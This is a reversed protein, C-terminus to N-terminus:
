SVVSATATFAGVKEEEEDSLDTFDNQEGVDNEESCAHIKALPIEPSINWILSRLPNDFYVFM